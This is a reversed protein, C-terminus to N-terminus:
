LYEVLFFTITYTDLKNSSQNDQEIFFQGAELKKQNDQQKPQETVILNQNAETMPTM